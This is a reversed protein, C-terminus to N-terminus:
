FYSFFILLYYNIIIIPSPPRRLTLLSAKSFFTAKLIFNSHCSPSGTLLDLSSFSSCFPSRSLPVLASVLRAHQFPSIFALLSPESHLLFSHYMTLHCRHTLGSSAPTKAITLHSFKMRIFDATMSTRLLSTVGESKPKAWKDKYFRKSRNVGPSM